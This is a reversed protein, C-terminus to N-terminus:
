DSPPATALVLQYINDRHSRCVDTPMAEGPAGGVRRNTDDNFAILSAVDTASRVIVYSWEDAWAHRMAGLWLGHGAAISAQAAPLLRAQDGAVVESVKNLPCNFYSMAVTLPPDPMSGATAVTNFAGQYIADRHSPCHTVFADDEGYRDVYRSGFEDSAAIGSAIDETMTITVLNWEDGWHHVLVMQGLILGENAMEQYIPLDRDRAMTVLDGIAGRDCMWSSVFLTPQDQAGAPVTSIAALAVALLLTLRHM